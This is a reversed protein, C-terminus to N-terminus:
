RRCRRDVGVQRCWSPIVPHDLVTIRVVPAVEFLLLEQREGTIKVELTDSATTM